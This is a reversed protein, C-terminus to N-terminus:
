VLLRFLHGKLAGEPREKALFEEVARMIRLWVARRDLNGRELMPDAHM